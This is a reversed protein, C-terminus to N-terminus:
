KKKKRSVVLSAFATTVAIEAYFVMEVLSLQPPLLQVAGVVFPLTGIGIGVFLTLGESVELVEVRSIAVIILGLFLLSPVWFALTGRLVEDSPRLFSVKLSYFDDFSSFNVTYNAPGQYYNRVLDAPLSSGLKVFNQSIRWSDAISPSASVYSTLGVLNLTRNFGFLFTLSYADWPYEGEHKLPWEHPRAGKEPYTPLPWYGGREPSSFDWTGNSLTTPHGLIYQFDKPSWSLVSNFSKNDLTQFDVQFSSTRLVTGKVDLELSELTFAASAQGNTIGFPGFTYYPKSVVPYSVASAGVFLVAGTILVLLTIHISHVVFWRWSSQLYSKLSGILKPM